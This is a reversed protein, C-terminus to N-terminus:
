IAMGKMGGSSLAYVFAPVTVSLDFVLSLVISQKM